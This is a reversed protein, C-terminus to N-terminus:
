GAKESQGWVDFAIFRPKTEYHSCELVKEFRGTVFRLPITKAGVIGLPVDVPDFDASNHQQWSRRESPL